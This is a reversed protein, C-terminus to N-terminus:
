TERYEPASEAGTELFTADPNEPASGRLAALLDLDQLLRASLPGRAIGLHVRPVQGIAAGQTAADFARRLEVPQPAAAIMARAKRATDPAADSALLYLGIREAKLAAQLKEFGSQVEGARCALGIRELTRRECLRELRDTLDSPVTLRSRAARSFLNKRCAEELVQREPILWLGRGPLRGDLDPVVSGDPGAVFRLLRGKPLRRGTVLCRRLPVRLQDKPYEDNCEATGSM